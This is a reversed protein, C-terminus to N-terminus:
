NLSGVLNKDQSDRDASRVLSLNAITVALGGIVFVVSVALRLRTLGNFLSSHSAM